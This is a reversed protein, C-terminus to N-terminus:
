VVCRPEGLKSPAWDLQCRHLALRETSRHAAEIGLTAGSRVERNLDLFSLTLPRNLAPLQLYSPPDAHTVGFDERSDTAFYAAIPGTRGASSPTRGNRAGVM